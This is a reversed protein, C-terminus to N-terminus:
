RNDCFDISISTSAGLPDASAYYIFGTNDSSNPWSYEFPATEDSTIQVTSRTRNRMPIKTTGGDLSIYYQLTSSDFTGYAAIDMHHLDTTVRNRTITALEVMGSASNYTVTDECGAFAPATFLVTLAFLVSLFRM